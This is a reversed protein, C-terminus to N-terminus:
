PKVKQAKRAKIARKHIAADRAPALSLCAWQMAEDPDDMASDPLSMLSAAERPGSARMYSFPRSGAADFQARTSVDSKMWVTGGLIAAFMVDGEVYLATGSFMRGTSIPGLGAFLDRIHALFAPDTAM